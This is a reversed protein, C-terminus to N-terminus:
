SQPLIWCNQFLWSARSLKTLRYKWRFMCFVSTWIVHGFIRFECCEVRQVICKHILLWFGASKYVSRKRERAQPLLASQSNGNFHRMADELCKRAASNESEGCSSSYRSEARQILYISFSLVFHWQIATLKVPSTWKELAMTYGIETHPHLLIDINDSDARTKGDDSKSHGAYSAGARQFNLNHRTINSLIILSPM